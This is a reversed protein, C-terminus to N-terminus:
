SRSVTDVTRIRILRAEVKKTRKSPNHPGPREPLFDAPSGNLVAHRIKYSSTRTKFGFGTARQHTPLDCLAGLIIM